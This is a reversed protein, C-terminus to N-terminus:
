RITVVEGRTCTPFRPFSAPFVRHFGYLKIWTVARCRQWGNIQSLSVRPSWFFRNDMGNALIEHERRFSLLIKGATLIEGLVLIYRSKELGCVDRPGAPRSVAGAVSFLGTPSHKMEILGAHWCM